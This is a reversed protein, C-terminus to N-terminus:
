VTLSKISMEDYEKVLREIEKEISSSDISNPTCYFRAMNFKLKIQSYSFGKIHILENFFLSDLYAIVTPISIDLGYHGDELFQSYKNNFETTTM